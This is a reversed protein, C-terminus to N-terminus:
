SCGSVSVHAIGFTFPMVPYQRCSRHSRRCVKLTRPPPRPSQASQCTTSAPSPTCSTTNPQSFTKEIASLPADAVHLNYNRPPPAQGLSTPGTPRRHSRTNELAHRARDVLDPEIGDMLRWGISRITGWLLVIIAASIILGIISDALPFGLMVGVIGLVVALSTFGDLRAHVDDTVLTAYGIKQGVM